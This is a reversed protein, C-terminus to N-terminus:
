EHAALLIEQALAADRTRAFQRERAIGIEDFACTCRLGRETVTDEDETMVILAVFDDLEGIDGTVRELERLGRSGPRIGFVDDETAHVEHGFGGVDEGAIALGHDEGIECCTARHRIHCSDVLDLLRPHM